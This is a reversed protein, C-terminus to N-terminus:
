TRQLDPNRGAAAQQYDMKAIAVFALNNKQEAIDDAHHRSFSTPQRCSEAYYLVSDLNRYHFAYAKDNDADCRAVPSTPLLYYFLFLLGCAVIGICWKCVTKKNNLRYRDPLSM